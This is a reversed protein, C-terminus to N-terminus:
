SLSAQLLLSRLVEYNNRDSASHGAETWILEATPMKQSLEYATIPPCVFDYRGQVLWTPTKINHANNLIHRDPMFCLNNLYHMEIQAPSPDYEEAFQPNHRDDLSLLPGEVLEIAKAAEIVAQRDSGFLRKSHYAKPNTRYKQPVSDVFRQWIEPFHTRYLGNTIYMTEQESGTFIGQIVLTKVRKPYKLTYALALTSGWSGGTLIFQKLGLKDAIKEVDDVLKDTTNHELSGHPTSKGVGRQDHFIIRQKTPDFRRKHRDAFGYGPGGHLVMIPNKADRNGWDHVYITHGDGVDLM